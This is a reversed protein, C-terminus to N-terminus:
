EKTRRPSREYKGVEIKPTEFEYYEAILSQIEKKLYQKTIRLWLIKKLKRPLKRYIKYISKPMLVYPRIAIYEEKKITETGIFDESFVEETM